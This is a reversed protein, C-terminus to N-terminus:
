GVLAQQVLEQEPGADDGLRQRDQVGVGRDIDADDVGVQGEHDQRDIGRKFLHVAGQELRGLIQAARRM